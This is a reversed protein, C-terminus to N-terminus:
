AGSTLLFYGALLAAAVLLNGYVASAVRHARNPDLSRAFGYVWNPDSGLFLLPWFAAIWVLMWGLLAAVVLASFVKILVLKRGKLSYMEVWRDFVCEGALVFLPGLVYFSVQKWASGLEGSFMAQQGWLLDVFFEVGFYSVITKSITGALLAPHDLSNPQIAVAFKVSAAASLVLFYVRIVITM